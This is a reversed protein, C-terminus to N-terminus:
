CTPITNVRHIRAGNSSTSSYLQLDKTTHELEIRAHTVIRLYTQPLQSVLPENPDTSPVPNLVVRRTGHGDGDRGVIQDTRLLLDNPPACVGHVLLFTGPPLSAPYDALELERPGTDPMASSTYIRLLQNINVIHGRKV